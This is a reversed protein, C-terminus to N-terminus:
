LADEEATIPDAEDNNAVGAEMRKEDKPRLPDDRKRKHFRTIYLEPPYKVGLRRRKADKSSIRLWYNRKSTRLFKLNPVTMSAAKGRRKALEEHRWCWWDEDACGTLELNKVGWAQSLLAGDILDELNGGDYIDLLSQAFIELKPYPISNGSAEIHKPNCEFHFAKDSTIVFALKLGVFKFRPYLVDM